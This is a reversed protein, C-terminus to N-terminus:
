TTERALGSLRASSWMAATTPHGDGLVRDAVHVALEFSPCARAHVTPMKNHFQAVALSYWALALLRHMHWSGAAPEEKLSHSIEAIARIAADAADDWKKLEALSSCLNLQASAEPARISRCARLAARFCRLSEAAKGRRRLLRGRHSHVLYCLAQRVSDSPILNQSAQGETFLLARELLEEALALEQLSEMRACLRSLQLVTRKAEAERDDLEADDRLLLPPVECDAELPDGTLEDFTSPFSEEKPESFGKVVALTDEVLAAYEQLSGPFTASPDVSRFQPKKRSSAKPMRGRAWLKADAAPAAAAAANVEAEQLISGKTGSEAKGESAEAAPPAASDGIPPDGQVPITAYGDGEQSSLLKRALKEHQERLRKRRRLHRARGEAARSRDKAAELRRLEVLRAVSASIAEWQQTDKEQLERVEKVTTYGRVRRRRPVPTSSSDLNPLGDKKIEVSQGERGLSVVVAVVSDDGIIGLPAEAVHLEGLFFRVVAPSRCQDVEVTVVDGESLARANQPLPLQGSGSSGLHEGRQLRGDALFCLGAEQPIYLSLDLVLSAPSSVLVGFGMEASGALNRVLFSSRFIRSACAYPPAVALSSFPAGTLGAKRIVAAGSESLALDPDMESLRRDFESAQIVSSEMQRSVPNGDRLVGELGRVIAARARTDRQVENLVLHDWSNLEVARESALVRRQAALGDLVTLLEPAASPPVAAEPVKTLDTVQSSTFVSSVDGRGDQSRSVSSNFEQLAHSYAQDLRDMQERGKKMISLKQRVRRIDSSLITAGFYGHPTGYKRSSAAWQHCLPM